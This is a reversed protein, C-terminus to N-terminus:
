QNIEEMEAAVLGSRDDTESDVKSAFESFSIMRKRLWHFASYLILQGTPAVYVGAAADMNFQRGNRQFEKRNVKTVTIEAGASNSLMDDIEPLEVEFLGATDKKSFTPAFNGTNHMGILFLKGDAQRVFNINQYDHFENDQGDNSVIDERFWSIREDAFGNEFNTDKSIYLDMRRSDDRNTIQPDNSCWVGLLFPGDPLNTLAVAYAKKGPLDLEFPFKEPAEPKAFNYFVVKSNIPVKGGFIRYKPKASYVPVAVIDGLVSMGGAHWKERDVPITAVIKDEEATNEGNGSRWRGNENGSNMKIVFLHSMPEHPDGGSVVLYDHNCLRCMGQFHNDFGLSNFIHATYRRGRIEEGDGAAMDRGNEAIQSFAKQVNAVTPNSDDFTGGSFRSPKSYRYNKVGAM